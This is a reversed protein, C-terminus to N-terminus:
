KKKAAASKKPKEIDLILVRNMGKRTKIERPILNIPKKWTDPKGFITFLKQLSNIVGESVAVYSTGDEAFLICRWTKNLEGSEEDLLEVPHILANVVPISKGGNDAAWDRLNFDPNQIGSFIIAQNDPDELDCFTFLDTTASFMEKPDTFVALAAAEQEIADDAATLIDLQEQDESIINKEETM